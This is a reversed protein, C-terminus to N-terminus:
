YPEPARKTGGPKLRRTRPVHGVDADRVHDLQQVSLREPLRFPRRTRNQSGRLHLQNAATRVDTRRGRARGGRGRHLRHGVHRPRRSPDRGLRHGPSRRAGRHHVGAGRRRPGLQVVLHEKIAALIDQSLDDDVYAMFLATLASGSGRPHDIPQRTAPSIAQYVLGTAPDLFHKRYVAVADRVVAARQGEADPGVVRDYLAISGVSAAMDCPYAEGPYTQLVMGPSTRLRRVLAATVRDHLDAHPGHPDLERTLGLLINLYGLYAAHHAPDHDLTELPENGWKAATFRTCAPDLIQTICGRVREIVRPDRQEPALRLQAQASGIGAMLYNGFLWEGDFLPSGTQFAEARWRQQAIHDVNRDFKAMAAPDRAVWDAVAPLEAEASPLVGASVVLVGGCFCRSWRKLGAMRPKAVGENM